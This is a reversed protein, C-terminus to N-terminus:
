SSTTTRTCCTTSSLFFVKIRWPERSAVTGWARHKLYFRLCLTLTCQRGHFQVIFCKSTCRVGWGSGPGRGRTFNGSRILEKFTELHELSPRTVLFGGQVPQIPEWPAASTVDRTFFADIVKPMRQFAPRQIMLRSRAASGVPSGPPHLLADFLDDMPRLVLVDLDWHVVVPHDTLGYAHLKVFEDSGCCNEGEVHSKYWGDPVEKEVEVPNAVVKPIYGLRRLFGSLAPDHGCGKAHVFAYMQYSYTSNSPAHHVSSLHISHRLTVLADMFKHTKGATCKILSV